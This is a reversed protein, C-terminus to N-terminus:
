MPVFASVLSVFYLSSGIDYHINPRSQALVRAAWGTHYIYHRDFSTRPTADDLCPFRDEWKLEFRPPLRGQREQFDRFQAKFRRTKNWSGLAARLFKPRLKSM